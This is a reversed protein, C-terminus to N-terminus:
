IFMAWKPYIGDTIYNGYPIPTWQCWIRLKVMYFIMLFRHDLVNIDNLTDSPGFFTHWIWLDHSAVVELVITPKGGGHSYQCKWATPCNKREWHMCDISGIKGSIERMEGIDLLRQLNEPTLRRLYVDEFLFIVGDVFYELCLITTSVGLRLYEDVADGAYGEPLIEDKNFTNYEHSLRYVIRM